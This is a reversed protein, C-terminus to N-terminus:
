RKIFNLNLLRNDGELSAFDSEKILGSDTIITFEDYLHCLRDGCEGWSLGAATVQPLSYEIFLTPLSVEITQWSGNLVSPEYGEVDIKILDILKGELYSDLTVSSLVTSGTQSIRQTAGSGLDDFRVDGDYDSVASEIIVVKHEIQNIRLNNRLFSLNSQSPEFAFVQQVNPHSALLVTWIGVNAGIDVATIPSTLSDLYSTLENLEYLEYVGDMLTPLTTHDGGPYLIRSGRFAVEVPETGFARLAARKYIFDTARWGQIPTNRFCRRGIRMFSRILKRNV